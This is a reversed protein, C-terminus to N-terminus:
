GLSKENFNYNLFIGWVIRDLSNSQLNLTLDDYSKLTKKKFQKLIKINKVSSFFSTRTRLNEKPTNEKCFPLLEECVFGGPNSTFQLHLGWREESFM